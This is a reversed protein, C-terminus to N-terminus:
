GAPVAAVTMASNTETMASSEPMWGVTEAAIRSGMEPSVLVSRVAVMAMAPIAMMVIKM